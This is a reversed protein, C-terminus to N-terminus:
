RSDALIRECPETTRGKKTRAADLMICSAVLYSLEKFITQGNGIFKKLLLAVKMMNGGFDPPIPDHAFSAQVFDFPTQLSYTFHDFARQLYSQFEGADLLMRINKKRDRAEKSSERIVKSLKEVQDKIKNPRGHTPIRVVHISSYYCHILEEVTNVRRHKKWFTALQQFTKNSPLTGKFDELLTRTADEVSWREEGGDYSAANLAIVAHPLVPQNSSKELAKHAWDLLREIVGEVVRCFCTLM